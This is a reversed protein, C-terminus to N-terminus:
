STIQYNQNNNNNNNNNNGNEVIFANMVNNNGDTIIVINGNQNQTIFQNMVTAIQQQSGGTFNTYNVWERFQTYINRLQQNKQQELQQHQNNKQLRLTRQAEDLKQDIDIHKQKAGKEIVSVLLKLANLKKHIERQISQNASNQGFQRHLMTMSTNLLNDLEQKEELIVDDLNTSSSISSISSSQMSSQQSLISASSMPSPSVNVNNLYSMIVNVQTREM